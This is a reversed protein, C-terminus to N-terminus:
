PCIKQFLRQEGGPPIGPWVEELRGDCCCAELREGVSRRGAGDVLLLCGVNVQEHFWALLAALAEQGVGVDVHVLDISAVVGAELNAVVHVSRGWRVSFREPHAAAVERACPRSYGHAGPDVSSLRLAPNSGLLM